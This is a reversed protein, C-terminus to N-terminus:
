LLWSASSMHRCIARPRLNAPATLQSKISGTSAAAVPQMCVINCQQQFSATLPMQSHRTTAYLAPLDCGFMWGDLITSESMTNIVLVETLTGGVNDVCPKRLYRCLDRGMTM